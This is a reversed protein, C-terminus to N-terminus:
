KRVRVKDTVLSIQNNARSLEDSAIKWSGIAVGALGWWIISVTDDAWIPLLLAMIAIGIGSVFVSLAVYSMRSSWLRVLMMVFIIILMALGLWGVEHAVLLYYNEIVLPSDGFLSASGGSGIGSGLPQTLMRSVSEQISVVHGQNSTDISGTTPNDHLIVNSVFDSDRIAYLGGIIAFIIIAGVIWVRRSLKSRFIVLLTIGIAVVTAILASRSYSYWLAVLGGVVLISAMVKSQKMPPIKRKLIAAGIFSLVIVAYAGLSNPGRLTSNIRIYDLNEDVTLYPQITNQGYGIYKLIDIPLVFAQLIAFIMVIIAGFMFIKLFNKRMEPFLLICIYVLSFYVVFRLDILLGAVISSLSLGNLLSFLATTVHLLIYIGILILLPDKLLLFQRKRYLIFGLVVVAISMLIEKWAKILLSYDPLLTTLGVSIPAHLVIGGFVVLLIGVYIKELSSNSQRENTKDIMDQKGGVM